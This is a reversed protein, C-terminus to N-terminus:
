AIPLAGLIIDYCPVDNKMIKDFNRMSKMIRDTFGYIISM